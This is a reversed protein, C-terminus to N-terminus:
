IGGDTITWGKSILNARAASSASTHKASGFTITIPTQVARSDWGNYIADLNAASFTSPTQLGMFDNFITVNSVNWSGINQDFATTAYLMVKMNTVSSVDWGSIDSNFNTASQLMREMVTCSTPTWSSIDGGIGSLGFNTCSLFMRYMTAVNSVDWSNLNQNFSPCNAFTEYFSVVRSINWSNLPQNFNTCFQFMNNMTINGTSKLTWSDINSNFNTAQYFMTNFVTVSSVDWSSIDGNFLTCGRFTNSLSSITGLNPYDTFNGTMNACGHFASAMSAFVNTGWQDISTLKLKDGGNAFSIGGFARSISIQYPGSVPYTHTLAADNYTTITSTTSDGWDVICNYSGTSSFPLVFTDSASGSQTTDITIKFPTSTHPVWMGKTPFNFLTGDFNSTEDNLTTAIGSENFRWYATPSSIVSSALAGNGGNYLDTINQQTAATGNWIATEDMKGEFPAGYNYYAGIILNQTTTSKTSALVGGYSSQLVGNIYLDGSDGTGTKVIAYHNWSNLTWGTSSYTRISGGNRWYVTGVTVDLELFFEGAISTTLIIPYTGSSTPNFWGSATYLDSANYFLDDFTNALTNVHDDVGDFLLANGFEFAPPVSSAGGRIKNYPSIGSASFFPM